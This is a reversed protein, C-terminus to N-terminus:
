NIGDNAGKLFGYNRAEEPYQNIFEPNPTGDKYPQLLDRRHEERQRDHSYVKYTSSAAAGLEARSGLSTTKSSKHYVGNIIYGTINKM